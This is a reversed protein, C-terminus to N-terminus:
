AGILIRVRRECGRRKARFVVEIRRREAEKVFWFKEVRVSLFRQV